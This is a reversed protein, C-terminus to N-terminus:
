NVYPCHLEVRTAMEGTRWGQGNSLEDFDMNVFEKTAFTEGRFQACKTIQDVAASRQLGDITMWGFWGVLAVGVVSGVVILWFRQRQESVQEAPLPQERACTRCVTAGENMEELCYACKM